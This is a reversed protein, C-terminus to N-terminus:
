GDQQGVGGGCENEPKNVEPLPKRCFSPLTGGLGSKRFVPVLAKYLWVTIVFNLAIWAPQTLAQTVAISIYRGAFTNPDFGFWGGVRQTVPLFEFFPVTGLANVGLTVVFFSIVCSLLLKVYFNGSPKEDLRNVNLRSLGILFNVSKKFHFVLGPIFGMLARGLTILPNFTLTPQIAFQILDATGMVVAGYFPGLFIGSLSAIAYVFSIRGIFNIQFMASSYMMLVIAIGTFFAAYAM